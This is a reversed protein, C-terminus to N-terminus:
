HKSDDKKVSPKLNKIKSILENIEDFGNNSATDAPPLLLQINNEVTLLNNIDNIENFNINGKEDVPAILSLNGIEGTITNLFQTDNSGIIQILNGMAYCKHETSNLVIDGTSNQIIHRCRSLGYGDVFHNIICVYNNVIFYGFGHDGFSLNYKKYGFGSIIINLNEDFFDITEDSLNVGYGYPLSAHFKVYSYDIERMSGNEANLLQKKEVKNNKTRIIFMSAKNTDVSECSNASVNIIPNFNANYFHYDTIESDISDQGIYTTPTWYPYGEIRIHSIFKGTKLNVYLHKNVHEENITIPLCIKLTDSVIEYDLVEELDDIKIENTLELNPTYIKIIGKEIIVINGDHYTPVTIINENQKISKMELTSENNIGVISIEDKKIIILHKGSLYIWGEIDKLLIKGNANIVCRKYEYFNTNSNYAERFVYLNNGLSHEFEYETPAPLYKKTEIDYLTDNGGDVRMIIHLTREDQKSVHYANEDEYLVEMTKLDVVCTSFKKAFVACFKDGMNFMSILHNYESVDYLEKGNTLIRQGNDLVIFLYDEVKDMDKIKINKFGLSNNLSNILKNDPM